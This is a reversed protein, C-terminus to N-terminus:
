LCTCHGPIRRQSSPHSEYVVFAVILKWFRKVLSNKRETKIQHVQKSERRRVLGVWGAELKELWVGGSLRLPSPASPATPSPPLLDHYSVPFDILTQPLPKDHGTPLRTRLSLKSICDPTTYNPDPCTKSLHTLPRFTDYKKTSSPCVHTLAACARPHNLHMLGLCGAWPPTIGKCPVTYAQEPM